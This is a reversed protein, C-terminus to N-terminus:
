QRERYFNNEGRPCEERMLVLCRLESVASAGYSETENGCVSDIEIEEGSDTESTLTTENISCYVVTM